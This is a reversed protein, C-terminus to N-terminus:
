TREEVYASAQAHVTYSTPLSAGSLANIFGLLPLGVAHSIKVTVQGGPSGNSGSSAPTVTVDSPSLIGGGGNFNTYNVACSKAASTESTPQVAACRAAAAAANQIIVWTGFGITMQGLFFLFVFVFPMILLFEFAAEGRQGRDGAL